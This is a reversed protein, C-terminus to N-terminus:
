RSSFYENMRRTFHHPYPHRHRYKEKEKRKHHSFRFIMERSIRFQVFSIRNKKELWFLILFSRFFALSLFFIPFSIFQIIDVVVFSHRDIPSHSFLIIVFRFVHRHANGCIISSCLHLFRLSFSLFLNKAHQQQSAVSLFLAFSYHELAYM